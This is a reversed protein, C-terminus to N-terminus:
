SSGNWGARIEGRLAQFIASHESDVPLIAAGTARATAMVLPGAAVLTEKNALALTGGRRVAALGPVLGAAGVIASMTWDAPRTAADALAEPGAAVEVGSGALAERLEGYLEPRATVAV